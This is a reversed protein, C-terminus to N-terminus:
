ATVMILSFVGHLPSCPLPLTSLEIVILTSLLVTACERCTLLYNGMALQIQYFPYLNASQYVYPGALRTELSSSNFTVQCGWLQVILNVPSM